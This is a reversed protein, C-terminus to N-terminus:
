ARLAAVGKNDTASRNDEGGPVGLSVLPELWATYIYSPTTGAVIHQLRVKTVTQGSAPRPIYVPRAIELNDDTGVIQPLKGANFYTSGGDISVGVSIDDTPTTGTIAGFFIRALAYFGGETDIATSNGSTSRTVANELRLNVDRVM